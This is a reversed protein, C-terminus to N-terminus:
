ALLQKLMRSGSRSAQIESGDKLYVLFSRGQEEIKKIQELNIVASRHVRLFTKESLRRALSTLTGSAIYTEDATHISVYDGNAELWFIKNVDLPFILDRDKRVFLRTLPEPEEKYDGIESQSGDNVHGSLYKRIRSITKLFRERGFPKQLYDLAELEFATVAYHEFATTFVVAPRYKLRRLLEIGSLEPIQVDLFILDPKLSEIKAEARLGDSAEGVLKLWDVDAIFDRLTQRALPEDEVIFTRIRM